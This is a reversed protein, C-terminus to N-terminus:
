TFDTIRRYARYLNRAPITQRTGKVGPRDHWEGDRRGPVVLCSQRQIQPLQSTRSASAVCSQGHANQLIKGHPSFRRRHARGACELSPSLEILHWQRKNGNVREAEKQFHNIAHIDFPLQHTLPNLLQLTPFRAPNCEVARSVRESARSRRFHLTKRLDAVRDRPGPKLM